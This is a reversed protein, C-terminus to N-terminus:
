NELGPKLPHLKWQLEMQKEKGVKVKGFKIKFGPIDPIVEGSEDVISQMEEEIFNNYSDLHQRVLGKEDFLSKLVIWKDENSLKESSL